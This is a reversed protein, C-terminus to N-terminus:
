RTFLTGRLYDAEDSVMFAIVRAVGQPVGYNKRAHEYAEEAPRGERQAQAVDVSM